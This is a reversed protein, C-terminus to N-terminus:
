NFIILYINLHNYFVFVNFHFIQFYNYMSAVKGVGIVFSPFLPAHLKVLELSLPLFYHPPPLSPSIYSYIEVKAHIFRSTM